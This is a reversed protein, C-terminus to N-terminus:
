GIVFEPWFQKCNMPGTLYRSGAAARLFIVTMNRFVDSKLFLLFCSLQNSQFDINENLM